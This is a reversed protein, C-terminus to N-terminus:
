YDLLGKLLRLFDKFRALMDLLVSEYQVSGITQVIDKCGNLFRAVSIAVVCWGFRSHPHLLKGLSYAVIAVNQVDQDLVMRFVDGQCPSRHLEKKHNTDNYMV